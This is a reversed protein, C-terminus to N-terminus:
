FKLGAERAAALDLENAALLEAQAADLFPMLQPAVQQVGPWVQVAPTQVPPPQVAGVKAQAPFVPSRFDQQDFVFGRQGALQAVGQGLGAVGHVVGGVAAVALVQALDLAEVGGHQVQAQRQDVAQAHQPAPAAGPASQRHQDQGRAVVPVVLDGADIGAGNAIIFGNNTIENLYDTGITFKGADMLVQASDSYPERSVYIGNNDSDITGNNVIRNGALPTAPPTETITVSAETLNSEVAIGNTRAFIFGDNTVANDDGVIVADVVVVADVGDADGVAVEEM